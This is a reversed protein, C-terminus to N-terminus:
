YIPKIDALKFLGWYLGGDKATFEAKQAPLKPDNGQMALLSKMATKDQENMAFFPAIVALLGDINNTQTVLKGTVLHKDELQFNGQGDFSVNGASVKLSKLEVAADYPSTADAAALIEAHDFNSHQNNPASVSLGDANGALDIKGDTSRVFLKLSTSSFLSESRLGAFESSVDWNGKTDYLISILARDHAVTVPSSGAPSFTSPGDVLLLIHFPNYAQAVGRIKSIKINAKPANLSVGDCAYEFRFPFGGWSEKGCTLEVGKKRLEVRQSAILKRANSSAMFWYGSWAVCLLLMAGLPYFMYWPRKAATMIGAHNRGIHNSHGGHRLVPNKAIAGQHPPGTKLKGLLGMRADVAIVAAQADVGQVVTASFLFRPEYQPQIAAAGAGTNRKADIRFLPICGKGIKARPLLHAHDIHLDQLRNFQKVPGPPNFHQGIHGVPGMGLIRALKGVIFQQFQHLLALALHASARIIHQVREGMELLHVNM